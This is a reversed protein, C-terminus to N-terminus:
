RRPSDARQGRSCVDTPGGKGSQMSKPTDSRAGVPFRQQCYGQIARYNCFGPQLVLQAALEFFNFCTVVMDFGGGEGPCADDDRGVKARRSWNSRQMLTYGLEIMGVVFDDDDIVSGSFLWPRYERRAYLARAAVQSRPLVFNRSLRGRCPIYDSERIIIHYGVVAPEPRDALM